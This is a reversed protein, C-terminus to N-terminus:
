SKETEARAALQALTDETDTVLGVFGGGGGYAVSSEGAQKPINIAEVFADDHPTTGKFLWLWLWLWYAGLTDTGVAICHGPPTTDDTGAWTITATAAQFRAPM